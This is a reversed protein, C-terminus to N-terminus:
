IAPNNYIYSTQNFNADVEINCFTKWTIFPMYVHVPMQTRLVVPEYQVTCLRVLALGRNLSCHIVYHINYLVNMATYVFRQFQINYELPM